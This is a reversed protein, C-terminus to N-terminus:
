CATATADTLTALLALVEATTVADIDQVNGTGATNQGGTFGTATLGGATSSADIAVSSGLGRTDSTITITGAINSLDYKVWRLGGQYMNFVSMLDSQTREDQTALWALFSDKDQKHKGAEKNIAKKREREAELTAIKEELREIADPDDMYIARDTAREIETAKADMDDAKGMSEFARDERKVLRAREPIHGPQTNFAHDGRFREGQKLVAAAGMQRKAAWGSLREIRRERRERYTM